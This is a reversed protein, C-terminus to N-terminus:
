IMRKKIRPLEENMPDLIKVLEYVLPETCNAGHEFNILEGLKIIVNARIKANIEAMRFVAILEEM